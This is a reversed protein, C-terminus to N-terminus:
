LNCHLDPPQVESLRRGVMSEAVCHGPPWSAHAAHRQQSLQSLVWGGMVEIRVIVTCVRSNEVQMCQNTEIRM